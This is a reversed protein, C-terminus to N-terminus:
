FTLPKFFFDGRGGCAACWWNCHKEKRHNGNGHGTSVWAENYTMWRSAGATRASTLCPLEEWETSQRSSGGCSTRTKRLIEQVIGLCVLEDRAVKECAEWIRDLTWECLKGERRCEEKPSEWNGHKMAIYARRMTQHSRLTLVRGIAM